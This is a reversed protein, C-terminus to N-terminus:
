HCERRDVAHQTGADGPQQQLQVHAHGLRNARLRSRHRQGDPRWCLFLRFSSVYIGIALVALTVDRDAGLARATRFLLWAILLVSLPQVLVLATDGGLSRLLHLFVGALWEHYVFPRGAATYSYNEQHPIGELLIDRGLLLHMWVDNAYLPFIQVALILFGLALLPLRGLISGVPSRLDGGADVARAAGCCGSRTASSM